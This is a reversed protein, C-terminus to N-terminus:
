PSYLYLGVRYKSRPVLFRSPDADRGPRMRGGTFVRYGNYLLSPPGWFWLLLSIRTAARDVPHNQPREGASITPEFGALPMSTQRNQTNRTTPYLDRGRASCEDLHTRGVTTHWLTITFWRYHPPCPRRKAATGCSFSYSNDKMSSIILIYQPIV